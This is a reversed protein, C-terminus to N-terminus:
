GLCCCCPRSPYAVCTTTHLFRPLSTAGAPEHPTAAGALVACCMRRHCKGPQYPIPPLSTCPPVPACVSTSVM